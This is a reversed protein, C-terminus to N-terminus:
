ANKKFDLVKLWVCDDYHKKTEDYDYSRRGCFCCRSAGEDYDYVWPDEQQLLAIIDKAEM